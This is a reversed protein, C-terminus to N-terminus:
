NSSEDSGGLENDLMRITLRDMIKDTAEYSLLGMKYLFRIFDAQMLIGETLLRKTMTRMM